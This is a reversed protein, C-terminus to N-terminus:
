KESNKNKIRQRAKELMELDLLNKKGNKLLREVKSSSLIEDSNKGMAKAIEEYTIGQLLDRAYDRHEYVCDSSGLHDFVDILSQMLECDFTTRLYEGAIGVAFIRIEDTDDWMAGRIYTNLEKLYQSTFHWCSCLTRLASITAWSDRPYHLFKEVLSQYEKAGAYGLIMILQPLDEEYEPSCKTILNAVYKIEENSIENNSALKSLESISKMKECISQNSNLIFKDSAFYVTWYVKTKIQNGLARAM